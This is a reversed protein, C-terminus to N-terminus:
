KPRKAAAAAAPKDSKFRHAGKLFQLAVKPAKIMALTLGGEILPYVIWDSLVWEWSHLHLQGNTLFLYQLATFLISYLMGLLLFTIPKDDFLFRKLRSVLLTCCLFIAPYCGLAHQASVLDLCLGAFFSAWLSPFLPKKYIYLILLPIFFNLHISPFLAHILVTAFLSLIIGLGAKLM